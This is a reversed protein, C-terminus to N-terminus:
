LAPPSIVCILKASSKGTNRYFHSSSGDFYLSDGATLAYKKDAIVTEIEGELIYIFKEIGSATQEPNTKGNIELKVLVPM